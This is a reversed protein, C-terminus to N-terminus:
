HVINPISLSFAPIAAQFRTDDDRVFEYYGHMSGVPTAIVAGSTYSFSEQPAIRPQQGIVGSGHVQRVEGQADTIWWHRNLLQAAQEGRNAITITYAFVYREEEINSDAEIYQVQTTIEIQSM